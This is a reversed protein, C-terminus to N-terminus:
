DNFVHDLNKLASKGPPIANHLYQPMRKTFDFTISDGLDKIAAFDSIVERMPTKKGFCSYCVLNITEPWKTLHIHSFRAQQEDAADLMEFAKDIHPTIDYGTKERIAYASLPFILLIVYISFTIAHVLFCGSITTLTFSLICLFYKFLLNLIAMSLKFIDTIGLVTSKGLGELGTALAQTSDMLAAFTYGFKVPLKIIGLIIKILLAIPGGDMEAEEGPGGAAPLGFKLDAMKASFGGIVKDLLEQGKLEASNELLKDFEDQLNSTRVNSDFSAYGASNLSGVTKLDALNAHSQANNSNNYNTIM